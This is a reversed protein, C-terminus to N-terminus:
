NFLAALGAIILMGWSLKGASAAQEPSTRRLKVLHWLLAYCAVSGAFGFASTALSKSGISFVVTLLLLAIGITFIANSVTAPVYSLKECRACKTPGAASSWWKKLWSIGPEGCHPCRYM